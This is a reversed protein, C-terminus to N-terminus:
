PGSLPRGPPPPPPEQWRSTPSYTVGLYPTAVAEGGRKRSTLLADLAGTTLLTRELPWVPRADHALREIHKLLFSFHMMPREEQTWFLTSDSKGDAYRWAAAWDAGGDMTLVSARLGDRYEIMFLVPKRALKQITEGAALPRQRFRTAAEDLLKRDFRGARGADWVADGELCRVQRIGTEGGLRQEALCQVLELAHFGYADLRHYSTAVIEKVAAGHPLDIPPYRWLGPLSSGAMMPIKLRSAADYIVRADDFNDALHKDFFVPVSRGSNEFVRVLEDFLRRKPYRTSGIESDPYDGHEAILLVGDVALKNTGLTLADAVSSSLRFGHRAALDRSKDGAPTQDVYLSALKLRPWEGKGDLTHSELMRAAIIDAHSNHTWVTTIVAVTPMKPPAPRVAHLTFPALTTMYVTGDRAACIGMISHLPVFVGDPREEVGHHWPLAKGQADVRETYKPNSIALPGHDHCSPQGPRYSVLHLEQRRDDFSAAVGAWVTGDSGVCMARCDTSKAGAILPGHSRGSLTNGEGSLDYSYLANGSMAVAWLTKRDPSIEWNMPHSHEDALHSDKGPPKGDITQDLRDLKGSRPDYRAIQGGLLPHYARGLHDVVIFAYLHRADVLDRYKGTALDLVMFHSSEIPREDSCTSIYAVGRSEDPTVSIIGQHPVPIPYVRTKGTAPDFVMPYGGPYDTRKEGDKPYGQKTGFYIRGSAGVNNRTHIKAQAAFGTATVGIEQHADVAVRMNKTAPDFEVLYANHRYKAAGVYVRNNHGEVISFYGSGENTTHKPIAYATTWLWGTRSEGQAPKAEAAIWENVLKVAQEDSISSALPPMQGPGRRMMRDLLVSREPAGPTILRANPIGLPDHQPQADFLRMAPREALLDLNIQSNGGGAEVHCHACNAHLYSRARRDLDNKGDLPDVLRPYQSPRKVLWPVYAVRAALPALAQRLTQGLETGFWRKARTVWVDAHDSFPVRFAGLRELAALQNVTASGYDHEKNMQLTSLGLVFNAARTHCVMCEARSPFRWTQRRGGLSYVADAGSAPVLTADTQEDNWRYSYGQWEGQQKTLLRTEIRRLSTAGEADGSHSFTKVLVTGDPFNWGGRETFDIRSLGPLAIYREKAAGDSWLPANVSYPILATHPRHKAVSEFLGTESLRTPFKAPREDPPAAELRYLGGGHDVILLEGDPDLGFGTIQLPTDSLERPVAPIFGAARETIRADDHRLAWIRGTSYDGYIYAGILEPLKQGRYVVGGTLSRAEAHHHEAAPRAFTTAARQRQPRFPHRGELVSWGYNEGRRVLYVHEWLDQGNDGVWLKGSARDFTMRWPNRMGYAWIEPRANPTGILPNDRPVSYSRGKDPRDVDIRLVAGLLDANDQGTDLGDSDSTGDGSTIYLFGDAGFALDGGNHGDSEWELIVRQSAPDCIHPPKQEITFRSVRNLKKAASVPGNSCVFVYGNEAFKPHFAAAYPLRDMTLLTEVSAVQPDHPFRVIRGPGAWTGVHEIALLNKTGPQTIIYLPQRLSLKPYARVATYPLPPDPSGVVRSTTWAVRRDLSFPRDAAHILPRTSLAALCAISLIVLTFDRSIMKTM